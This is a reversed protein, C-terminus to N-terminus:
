VLTQRVGVILIRVRHDFGVVILIQSNLVTLNSWPAVNDDLNVSVLNIIKLNLGFNDIISLFKFFINLTQFFEVLNATCFGCCALDFIIKPTGMNILNPWDELFTHLM